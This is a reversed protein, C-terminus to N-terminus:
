RMILKLKLKVKLKNWGKVVVVHIPYM